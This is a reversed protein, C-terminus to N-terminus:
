TPREAPFSVAQEERQASAAAGLLTGMVEEPEDRWEDATWYGIECGGQVVRVYSCDEPYSPCHIAVGGVIEIICEDDYVAADRAGIAHAIVGDPWGFRAGLARIRAEDLHITSGPTTSACLRQETQPKNM